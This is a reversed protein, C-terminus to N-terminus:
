GHHGCSQRVILKGKLIIERTPRAPNEIRELLLDTALQGIEYTPQEIVTIGPRVLSTWTTEDFSAFAIEDPIVLNSERLAKFAGASLQANSTFIADPRDPLSLLKRTAQYGEEERANVYSFLTPEPKLGHSKLSKLYGERRERGTTSGVGFLAGIRRHGDAILHDVLRAASAENDILVSDVEAGRVQRDIVVLPVGLKVAQKFNDATQRTPSLIVGAVNEDHMLELYMAEKQPNEDANCLFLNLGNEYAMDEVARSVSTFFPNRIDSVILGIINTKQVRLSRAVRNPRYSLADVAAMVRERIEPRVHPKDSLVRSVTATSVGASEAVDKISAM